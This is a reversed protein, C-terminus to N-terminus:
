KDGGEEGGAAKVVEFSAVTLTKEADGAVTGTAKVTEGVLGKLEGAKDGALKYQVDNGDVLVVSVVAGSEDTEAAEVVGEVTTQAAAAADQASAQNFSLAVLAIGVAFVRILSRM